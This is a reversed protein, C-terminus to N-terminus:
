SKAQNNGYLDQANIYVWANV